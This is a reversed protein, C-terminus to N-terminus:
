RNVANQLSGVKAKFVQLDSKPVLLGGLSSKLVWFAELNWKLVQLGELTRNSCKCVKWLGIQASASRGFNPKIM